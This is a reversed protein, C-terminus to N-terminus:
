DYYDENRMIGGSHGIFKSIFIIAVCSIFGFIASYGPIAQWPYQAHPRPMLVDAIVVLVLVLQLLRWRLKAHRKDGFFNVLRAIM